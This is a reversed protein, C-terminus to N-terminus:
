MVILQVFFLLGILGYIIWTLKQQQGQIPTLFFAVRPPLCVAALTSVIIMCGYVERAQKLYELPLIFIIITSIMFTIIQTFRTRSHMRAWAFHLLGNAILMWLGWRIIFCGLNVNMGELGDWFSDYLFKSIEM